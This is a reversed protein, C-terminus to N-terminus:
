FQSIHAVSYVHTLYANCSHNILVRWCVCVCVCVVFSGSVAKDLTLGAEEKRAAEEHKYKAM